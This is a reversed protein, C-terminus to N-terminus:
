GKFVFVGSVPVHMFLRFLGMNIATHGQSKELVQM